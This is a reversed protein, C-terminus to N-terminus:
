QCSTRNHRKSLRKARKKEYNIKDNTEITIYHCLINIMGYKTELIVEM